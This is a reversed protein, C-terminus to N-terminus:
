NSGIQKFSLFSIFGFAAGAFLEALFAIYINGQERATFQSANYTVFQIQFVAAIVPILALIAFFIGIILWFKNM